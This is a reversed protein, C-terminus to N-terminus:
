LSLLYAVLAARDAPSLLLFRERSPAAEGGHAAIADELTPARGDHLYPASHAIGWLPATRFESGTAEGQEIGDALDPGMYHLLLDSFLRVRRGGLGRRGPTPSTRSFTRYQERHCGHCGIRRFVSRGQRFAAPPGTRPLPPLETTFHLIKYFGGDDEPERVADCRLQGTQPQVEDPRVYSTIGMEEVLAGSVFQYLSAQAAKWGFRGVGGYVMNARGSIGDGDRDLPDARRLISAEPIAEILGLGFLPPTDRRTVITAEPPVIEGPVSCEGTTIGRAQLVPGGLEVLPDFGDPGQRGFLVVSTPSSGGPMPRNHCAVCSTANFVPGLGTEPTRVRTFEELGASFSLDDASPPRFPQPELPAGLLTLVVPLMTIVM